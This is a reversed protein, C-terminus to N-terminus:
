IRHVPQWHFAKGLTGGSCRYPLETVKRLKVSGRRRDHKTAPIMVEIGGWEADTLDSPYRLVRRGATRRHEPTWM